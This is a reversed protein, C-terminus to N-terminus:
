KLKELLKTIHEREYSMMYQLLHKLASMEHRADNGPVWLGIKVLKTRDWFATDGQMSSPQSIVHVDTNEQKFLNIVGIYEASTLDADKKDRRNQFGEYIVKTNHTHWQELFGFLQEHHEKPGMTGTSWKVNYREFEWPGDGDGPVEIEEATYLAWGTHGGPDLGLRSIIGM